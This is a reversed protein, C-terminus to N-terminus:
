RAAHAIRVARLACGLVCHCSLLQCDVANHYSCETVQLPMHYGCLGPPLTPMSGRRMPTFECHASGAPWSSPFLSTLPQCEALTFWKCQADHNYPDSLAPDTPRGQTLPVAEASVGKNGGLCGSSPRVGANTGAARSPSGGGGRCTWHNRYDARVVGGLAAQDFPRASAECEHVCEM